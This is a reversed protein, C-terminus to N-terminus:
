ALVAQPLVAGDSERMVVRVRAGIAVQAPECDLVNMMMRFGEDLDVLSIVYPAMSKFAPTPARYVTTYSYISGLGASRRWELGAAQCAACRARPYFQPRGCAACHQYLLEGRACADWFPRTDANPVPVPKPM